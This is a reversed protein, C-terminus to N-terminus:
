SDARFLCIFAAQEVPTLTRLRDHSLQASLGCGRQDLLYVRYEELARQLWGSRSLPRPAQFGPGGELYLLAPQRWHERGTSVIERVFVKITEHAYRAAGAGERARRFHDLPVEFWLDTLTM